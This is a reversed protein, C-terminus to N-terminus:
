FTLPFGRRRGLCKQATALNNSTWWVSMIWAKMFRVVGDRGAKDIFDQSLALWGQGEGPKSIYLPKGLGTKLMREVTPDWSLVADVSKAQLAAVQKGIDQNIITVDAFPNKLEADILHGLARPFVASGVPAALRKGRLDALSKGTFDQAALIAYRWDHTRSVVKGPRRSVAFLTPFDGAFQNDTAGAVYAEGLAAGQTFTKFEATIGNLELINTRRLTEAIEGGTAWLSQYGFLDKAAAVDRHVPIRHASWTCSSEMSIWYACYSFLLACRESAQGPESTAHWLSMFIKGPVVKTRLAGAKRTSVIVGKLGVFIRISNRPNPM